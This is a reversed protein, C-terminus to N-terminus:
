GCCSATKSVHWASKLIAVAHQGMGRARRLHAVSGFLGCRRADELANLARTINAQRSEVRALHKRLESGPECATKSQEALWACFAKQDEWKM